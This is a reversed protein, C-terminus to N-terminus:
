RKEFAGCFDESSSVWGFFKEINFVTAEQMVPPGIPSVADELM